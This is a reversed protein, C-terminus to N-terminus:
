NQIEITTENMRLTSSVTGFTTVANFKISLTRKSKDFSFEFSTLKEVDPTQLIENRIASETLVANVPKTFIEQFYPLGASTDLFWEDQYTLLRERVHQIVQDGKDVTAIHGNELFLDNCKNVARGIM